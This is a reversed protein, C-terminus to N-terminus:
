RKACDSRAVSPEIALGTRTAPDERVLEIVCRGYGELASNMMYTQGTVPVFSLFPRCTYSVNGGDSFLHAGLTLRQGAPVSIADPVGKVEPPYYYKGDKCMEPRGFGVARVTVMQEDPRPVYTTVCGQLLVGCLGLALYNTTRSM